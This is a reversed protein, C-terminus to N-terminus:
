AYSAYIQSGQGQNHHIYRHNKVRSQIYRRHMYIHNKIRICTHIICINIICIDMICGQDQHLQTHHMYRQDKDRIYIPIIGIRVICIGTIRSGSYSPYIYSRSGQGPHMYAHIWSAYIYSGRDQHMCTHHMYTYLGQDQHMYIHGEIRICAHTICTHIISTDMIRSGSAHIESAPNKLTPRVFPRVSLAIRPTPHTYSAYIQPGQGKIRICAHMICINMIRLLQGKIWICTCIICNCTHMICIDIM